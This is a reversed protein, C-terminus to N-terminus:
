VFGAYGLCIAVSVRMAMANALLKLVLQTQSRHSRTTASHPAIGKECTAVREPRGEKHETHRLRKPMTPPTLCPMPRWSHHHCGGNAYAQRSHPAGPLVGWFYM